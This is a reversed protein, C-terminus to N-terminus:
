GPVFIVEPFGRRLQRHHDVKAFGLDEFPLLRLKESAEEVSISQQSVAELIKRIQDSNMTLSSRSYWPRKVGELGKVKRPKLSTWRQQSGGGLM